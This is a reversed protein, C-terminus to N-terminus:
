GDEDYREGDFTFLRTGDILLDRKGNHDDPGLDVYRGLFAGIVVPREGDTAYVTVDCGRALCSQYNMDLVIVEPRAQVSLPPDDLEVFTLFVRDAVPLKPAPVLATGIGLAAEIWARDAPDVDTLVRWGGVSGTDIYDRGTFWLHRGREVLDRVGHSFGPGLAFEPGRLLTLMSYAGQDWTLVIIPCHYQRCAAPALRVILDSRDAPPADGARQRIEAFAVQIDAPADFDLMSRSVGQNVATEIMALADTGFATLPLWVLDEAAAPPIPLWLALAMGLRPLIGGAAFTGRRRRVIPM